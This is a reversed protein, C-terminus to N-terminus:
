DHHILEIERMFHCDSMGAIVATLSTATAAVIAGILVIAQGLLIIPRRGFIDSLSGAIGFGVQVFTLHQQIYLLLSKCKYGCVM